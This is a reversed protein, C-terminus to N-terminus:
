SQWGGPEDLWERALRLTNANERVDRLFSQRFALDAIAIARAQLRDRAAAIAAVAGEVDGVAHKAEALVLRVLSEGEEIGGMSELLDMAQEAAELAAIARDNALQARALAGLAFVRSPARAPTMEVAGRAERVAGLEDGAALLILSLHTRASAEFRRDGEAVSEKLVEMMMTRAEAHSERRSLVVGLNARAALAVHNLGMREAAGIAARVDAEAHAYAGLEQKVFGVNVRQTLANRMDSAAAFREAAAESAVMYAGLDGEHMAAVARMQLLRASIAPPETEAKRVLPDVWLLLRELLPIQGTHMLYTATCTLTGVSAADARATPLLRTMEDALANVRATDNRSGAALVAERAALWWMEAGPPLIAMAEASAREALVLEGRWRHAEALRTRLAGLLEGKAGADVGRRVQLLANRFDNQKLFAEASRLAQVVRPDQTEDPALLPVSPLPARPAPAAPPPAEQRSLAAPVPAPAPTPPRSLAPPVPAPAPTPPRSQAPPAPAPAPAEPRSAVSSEPAPAPAEQRAIAPPAPAQASRVEADRLARAVDAAFSSSADSAQSPETVLEEGDDTVLDEASATTVIVDRGRPVTLPFPSTSGLPPDSDPIDVARNRTTVLEDLPDDGPRGAGYITALRALGAAVVGADRPREDPQRALMWAVFTEIEEPLQPVVDRARRATGKVVRLLVTLDDEGGYAGEGTLCKFLVCGLAFVDARADVNRDGLAQEPAIYGPTGLLVGTRTVDPGVSRRAIGFDILKVREPDRGELFLNSPKLDRHVVGHAHMVGLAEATSRGFVLTEALTLPERELRGELSEGELWEMVLYREGSDLQGDSVFGVIGHHALGAILQAERIFRAADRPDRGHLLKLAVTRGTEQDHTKWVSGMGGSGALSEIRFRGGVLDGSRVAAFYLPLTFHRYLQVIIEARM